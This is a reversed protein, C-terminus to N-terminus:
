SLTPATQIVFVCSAWHSARGSNMRTTKPELGLPGLKKSHKGTIKCVRVAVHASDEDPGSCQSAEPGHMNKGWETYKVM